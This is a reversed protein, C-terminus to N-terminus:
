FVTKDEFSIKEECLPGRSQPVLLEADQSEAEPIHVLEFNRLRLKSM